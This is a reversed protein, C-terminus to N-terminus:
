PVLIYNGNGIHKVLKKVELMVLTSAISHSPLSLKQTLTDIHLSEFSLLTLIKEELPPLNKPLPKAATKHLPFLNRPLLEDLIDKPATVPLAGLKLLANTGQCSPTFISGPVAFVIRNYDLALRATILSGSKEAAEIVLTGSTLGAIIRNRLPFNRATPVTGPAFESVIAGGAALIEQAVKQNSTPTISADDIGSGLVALTYVEERLAAEHAIKDIGFALGSVIGIGAQAAGRVLSECAQKGYSTYKRSGVVALLPLENKLLAGRVYLFYPHDPAELLLAPYVLDNETVIVISQEELINAHLLVDPILTHRDQWVKTFVPGLTIDDPLFNSEWTARADFRFATLLKRLLRDSMNPLSRLAHLYLHHKEM